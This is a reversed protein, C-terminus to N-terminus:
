RDMGGVARARDAIEDPFLDDAKDLSEVAMPHDFTQGRAIQLLAIERLFEIRDDFQLEALKTESFGSTPVASAFDIMQSWSKGDRDTVTMINDPHLDGHSFGKEHLARIHADAEYLRQAMETVETPDLHSGVEISHEYSLNRFSSQSAYTVGPIARSRYELPGFAIPEIYSARGPGLAEIVELTREFEMRPTEGRRLPPSALTFTKLFHCGYRKSTPLTALIESGPIVIDGRTLLVGSTTRDQYVEFLVLDGPGSYLSLGHDELYSLTRESTHKFCGVAERVERRIRAVLSPKNIPAM